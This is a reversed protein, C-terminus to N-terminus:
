IPVLMVLKTLPNFGWVHQVAWTFICGLVFYQLKELM